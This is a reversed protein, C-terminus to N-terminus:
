SRIRVYQFLAFIIRRNFLHSGFIVPPLVKNSIKVCIQLIKLVTIARWKNNTKLEYNELYNYYKIQEMFLYIDEFSIIEFRYFRYIKLLKEIAWKLLSDCYKWGTSCATFAVKSLIVAKISFTLSYSSSYTKIGEILLNHAHMRNCSSVFGIEMFRATLCPSVVLGLSNM